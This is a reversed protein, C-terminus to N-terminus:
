RQGPEHSGETDDDRGMVPNAKELTGDAANQVLSNDIKLQDHHIIPRRVAGGRPQGRQLLGPKPNDPAICRSASGSSAIGADLGRLSPQDGKQVVIVFVPRLKQGTM